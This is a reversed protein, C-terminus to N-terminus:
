PRDTVWNGLIAVYHRYREGDLTGAQVAAVVGCGPEQLHRCDAYRCPYESFEPFAGAIERGESVQMRLSTYGPADALWFERLRWLRVQRTTERGRGIRSLEQTVAAAEPIAAALLTSKGVGSEGVMVWVGQRSAQFMEDLGDGTRSSVAWVPYGARRYVESIAKLELADAVDIKNVVVEVAMHSLEALVLRKDLLERNGQPQQLTFVVFMGTVNAVPPRLLTNTRPVVATVIGEGPDTPEVEVRDGVMIRGLDRQIRGRLYCLYRRGDDALVTPRNAELGVVLGTM